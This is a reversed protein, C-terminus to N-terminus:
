GAPAAALVYRDRGQQKGALLAHDARDIASALADEPRVPTLGATVTMALAGGGALPMPHGRVEDLLRKVVGEPAPGLLLFLFEEGGYRIVIDNERLCGTMLRALHQLALDGVSHGWVDNVKKFHDVDVMALHLPLGLRAADRQRIDFAYNLGNRLPLGTLADYQLVSDAVRQRLLNLNAVMALQGGEYAQLDAADAPRGQAAQQCLSRVADHMARHHQELAQTLGADFTNLTDQEGLFWQGFVCQHHADPQMMDDGPAEHLLACRMLRQNWALHAEIGQDINALLSQFLRKQQVMPPNM